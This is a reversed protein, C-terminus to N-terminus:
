DQIQRVFRVNDMPFATPYKYEFDEDGDSDLNVVSVNDLVIFSDDIAVLRGRYDFDNRLVVRVNSGIWGQLYEM